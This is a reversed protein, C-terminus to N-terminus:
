VASLRRPWSPTGVTTEIDSPRRDVTRGASENIRYKDMATSLDNARTLLAQAAAADQEVLTSNKGTMEDIKAIASNVESIGASQDRSASAIEAVVMNVNQVAGVIDKLMAGSQDVLKAGEEVKVV